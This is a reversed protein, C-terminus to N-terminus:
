KIMVYISDSTVEHVVLREIMFSFCYFSSSIKTLNRKVIDIFYDFTEHFDAELYSLYSFFGVPPNNLIELRLSETYVNTNLVIDKLTMAITLKTPFGYTDLEDVFWILDNNDQYPIKILM